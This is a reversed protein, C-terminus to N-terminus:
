QNGSVGVMSREDGSGDLAGCDGGLRGGCVDRVLYNMDHAPRTHTHREASQKESEREREGTNTPLTAYDYLRINTRYASGSSDTLGGKWLM